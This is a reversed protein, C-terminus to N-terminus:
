VLLRILFAGGLELFELFQVTLTLSLGVFFFFSTVTFAKGIRSPKKETTSSHIPKATSSPSRRSMAM